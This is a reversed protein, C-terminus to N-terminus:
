ATISPTIIRPMSLAAIAHLNGLPSISRSSHATFPPFFVGIYLFIGNTLPINTNIVEITSPYLHRELDASLCIFASSPSSSSGDFSSFASPSLSVGITVVIEIIRPSPRAIASKMNSGLPIEFSISLNMTPSEGTAFFIISPTSLIAINIPYVESVASIFSM